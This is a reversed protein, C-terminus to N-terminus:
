EVKDVGLEEAYDELIEEPDETWNDSGKIRFLTIIQVEIKGEDELKEILQPIDGTCTNDGQEWYDESFKEGKYTYVPNKKPQLHFKKVGM